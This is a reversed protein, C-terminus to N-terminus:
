FFFFSFFFFFPLVGYKIVQYVTTDTCKQKNISNEQAIPNQSDNVSFIPGPTHVLLSIAHISFAFLSQPSELNTRSQLAIAFLTPAVQILM